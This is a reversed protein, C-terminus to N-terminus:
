NSISRSGMVPLPCSRRSIPAGQRSILRPLGQYWSAGLAPGLALSRRLPVEPLATSFRHSVRLLKPTPSPLLIPGHQRLRPTTSVSDGVTQLQSKSDFDPSNATPPNNTIVSTPVGLCGALQAAGPFSSNNNSSKTSTWGSPLDSLMLLAKKAQGLPSANHASAADATGALIGIALGGSLCVATCTRTVAGVRRVQCVKMLGRRTLWSNRGAPM